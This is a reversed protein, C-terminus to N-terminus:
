PALYGIFQSLFIWEWLWRRTEYAKELAFNARNHYCGKFNKEAQPGACAEHDLNEVAIDRRPRGAPLQSYGLNKIM